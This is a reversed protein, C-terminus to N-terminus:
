IGDLFYGIAEELETEEYRFHSKVISHLQHFIARVEAFRADTAEYTLAQAASALRNLLEHVVEHEARLRAIVARIGDEARDELAPFMHHEEANHHFTLARCERGCLTGFMQLNKAMDSALVFHALAEPPNEGAEIQDILLSIQAMDHLHHAHIAALHQGAKRHTGTAGPIKPSTPRHGDEVTLQALPASALDPRM